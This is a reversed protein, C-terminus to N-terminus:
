LPFAAFLKSIAESLIGIDLKGLFENLLDFAPSLAGSAALHPIGQIMRYAVREMSVVITGEFNFKLTDKAPRINFISLDFSVEDNGALTYSTKKVKWPLRGQFNIEGSVSVFYRRIARDYFHSHIKLAINDKKDLRAFLAVVAKDLTDAAKQMGADVAKAFSARRIDSRDPNQAPLSSVVLSLVLVLALLLGPQKRRFWSIIM